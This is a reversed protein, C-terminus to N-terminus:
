VWPISRGSKWLPSDCRSMFSQSSVPEDNEDFVLVNLRKHTGGKHNDLHRACVDSIEYIAGRVRQGQEPKITAEAGHWIRSWGSFILRYNPLVATSLPRADPCKDLMQQKNLDSAYAFYKM